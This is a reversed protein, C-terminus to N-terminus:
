VQSSSKTYMSLTKYLDILGSDKAKEPDSEISFLYSDMLDDLTKIESESLKFDQTNVINDIKSALKLAENYKDGVRERLENIIESGLLEKWDEETLLDAVIVNPNILDDLVSNLAAVIDENESSDLLKEISNMIKKDTLLSNEYNISTDPHVTAFKIPFGKVLMKVVIPHNLAPALRKAEYIAEEDTYWSNNTLEKAETNLYYRIKM